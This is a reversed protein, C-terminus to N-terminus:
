ETRADGAAHTAHFPCRWAEEAHRGSYQRAESREGFDALSPNLSGQLALERERIAARLREFQGQARLQEFQAHPNFVLTSWRFRRAVRSSRPHMGIVYLASGGFSFSFRPDEPDSSTGPDWGAAPNDREHLLQLQEWLRSEFSRESAFRRGTFVAVFATFGARETRPVAVFAALDRALAATARASGLTGYIGLGYAREHVVGKGALCPYDSGGVFARFAEDILDRRRAARADSM